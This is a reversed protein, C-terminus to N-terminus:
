PATHAPVEHSTPSGSGSDAARVAAWSAIAISVAALAVVIRQLRVNSIAATINSATSLSGVLVRLEEVLEEAQTLQSTRLNEVLNSAARPLGRLTPDAELFEIVDYHFESESSALRRIEQAAVEVDLSETVLL